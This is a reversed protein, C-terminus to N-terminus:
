SAGPCALARGRDGKERGDVMPSGGQAGDPFPPRASRPGSDAPELGAGGGAEGLGQTSLARGVEKVQTPAGAEARTVASLRTGSAAPSKGRFLRCFQFPVPLFSSLVTPLENAVSELAHLLPQQIDEQPSGQAPLVWAKGPSCEGLRRAMGM